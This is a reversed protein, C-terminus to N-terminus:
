TLYIESSGVLSLYTSNLRGDSKSVSTQRKCGLPVVVNMCYLFPINNSSNNNNNSGTSISSSNNNRNQSFLPILYYSYNHKCSMGTASFFCFSLLWLLAKWFSKSHLQGQFHFEIKIERRKRYERYLLSSTILISM